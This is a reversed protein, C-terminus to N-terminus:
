LLPELRIINNSSKVKYKRTIRLKKETKNYNPYNNKGNFMHADDILIVHKTLNNKLIFNLEEEIPTDKKGRATVGASYHGDLWFLAPEKIDKIIKPLVQASDGQIIKIHTQDSFRQKAAQALKGDLEVSIISTFVGRLAHVMAGTYTGTEV